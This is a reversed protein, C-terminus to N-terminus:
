RNSPDRGPKEQTASRAAKRAAIDQQIRALTAADYRRQAVCQTIYDFPKGNSGRGMRAMRVLLEM